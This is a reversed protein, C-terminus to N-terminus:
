FIDSSVADHRANRIPTRRMTEYRTRTSKDGRGPAQNTPQNTPGVRGRDEGVRTLPWSRTTYASHIRRAAADRIRAPLTGSEQVGGRGGPSRHAFSPIFLLPLSLRYRDCYPVALSTGIRVRSIQRAPKTRVREGAHQRGAHSEDMNELDQLSKGAGTFASPECLRCLISM